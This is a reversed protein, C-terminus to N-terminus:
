SKVINKRHGFFVSNSPVVRLHLVYTATCSARLVCCCVRRHFNNQLAREASHAFCTQSSMVNAEFRFSHSAVHGAAVCQHRLTAVVNNCVRAVERYICLYSLFCRPHPMGLFCRPAVQVFCGLPLWFAGLLCGLSVWSVGLHCGPSVWTCFADLLCGPLVWSAGLICGSAGLLCGPPM